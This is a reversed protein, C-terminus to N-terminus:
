SPTSKQGVTIKEDLELYDMATLATLLKTISAPYYREAANNEYVLTDSVLERIYM